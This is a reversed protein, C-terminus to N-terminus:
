PTQAPEGLRQWFRATAADYVLAPRGGLLLRAPGLAVMAPEGSIPRAGRRGLPLSLRGTIQGEASVFVFGDQLEVALGGAIPVLSPRAPAKGPLALAEDGLGRLTVRDGAEVGLSVRLAGLRSVALTQLGHPREPPGLRGSWPRLAGDVVLWLTDGVWAADTAPAGLRTCEGEEGLCLADDWSPDVLALGRGPRVRLSPSAVLDEWSWSRAAGGRPTLRAGEAGVRLLGEPLWVCPGPLGDDVVLGDALRVRRGDVTALEDGEPSLVVGDARGSWRRAASEVDFVAAGGGEWAVAALAGDASAALSVPRPLEPKLGVLGLFWDQLGM